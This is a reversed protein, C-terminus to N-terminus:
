CVEFAWRYFKSPNELFKFYFNKREFFKDIMEKNPFSLIKCIDELVGKLFDEDLFRNEFL